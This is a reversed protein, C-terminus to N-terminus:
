AGDIIGATLIGGGLQSRFYMGQCHAFNVGSLNLRSGFNAGHNRVRYNKSTKTFKAFRYECENLPLAGFAGDIANIERAKEQMKYIRDLLGNRGMTYYVLWPLYIVAPRHTKTSM